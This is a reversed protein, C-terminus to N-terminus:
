DSLQITDLLKELEAVSVIPNSNVNNELEVSRRTDSLLCNQDQAVDHLDSPCQTPADDEQFQLLNIAETPNTLPNLQDRDSGLKPLHQIDLGTLKAGPPTSTDADDGLVDDRVRMMKAKRQGLDDDYKDLDSADEQRKRKWM